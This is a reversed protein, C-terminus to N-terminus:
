PASVRDDNARPASWRVKLYEIVAEPSGLKNLSTMISLTLMLSLLQLCLTAWWGMLYTRRLATDETDPPSLLAACSVTLFLATVVSNNNVENLIRDKIEWGGVKLTKNWPGLKSRDWWQKGAKVPVLLAAKAAELAEDSLASAAGTPPKDDTDPVPQVSRM